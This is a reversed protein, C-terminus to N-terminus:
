TNNEKEPIGYLEIWKLIKKTLMYILRFQRPKEVGEQEIIELIENSSLDRNRMIFDVAIDMDIRPNEFPNEKYAVEEKYKFDRKLQVNQALWVQMKSGSVPKKYKTGQWGAVGIEQLVFNTTNKLFPIDTTLINKSNLLIRNVLTNKSGGKKLPPNFQLVENLDNIAKVLDQMKLTANIYLDPNFKKM